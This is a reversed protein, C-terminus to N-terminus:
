PNLEGILDAAGKAYTTERDGTHGYGGFPKFGLLALLEPSAERLVEPKTGLTHNQLSRFQPGCYYTTIGFRPEDSANAGASHWTRGDWLIVTGARGLAPVTPVRHPVSPAPQAGSLHSRPVLRTAGNEETYDSIMWMANVVVPPHLPLASARPLGEVTAVNGRAIAGARVYPKGPLALPPMWWQDIHL